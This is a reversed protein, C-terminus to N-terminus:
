YGRRNKITSLTINHLTKEGSFHRYLENVMEEFFRTRSRKTTGAIHPSLFVNHLNRIESNVPIPEPEFVDLCATIKKSKLANILDKSNVIKGRSVNIFVAGDRLLDFHKKNIMNKTKQTLPALCVIVDNNLFIDNLEVQSYNLKKLINKSIYPDYVSIKTKFPELYECLKKAIYGFGILGIKKGTLEENQFILDEKENNPDWHKKDIIKRFHYGGSRLGILILGLAWESVPYSSGHSTDIVNIKKEIAYESNIRRSFRDGELEGIFTLNKSSEIIEKSIKPSGHCVIVANLNETFNKLINIIEESSHPSEEWSSIENFEKWQFKCIQKLKELDNQEIYNDYVEKNCILGVKPLFKKM